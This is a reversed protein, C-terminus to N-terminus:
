EEDTDELLTLLAVDPPDTPMADYDADPDSFLPSDDELVPPPAAVPADEARGRPSRPRFSSRPEIAPSSTPTSGRSSSSRGSATVAPRGVRPRLAAAEATDASTRTPTLLSAAQSARPKPPLAPPMSSKSLEPTKPIESSKSLAEGAETAPSSHTLRTRPSLPQRLSGKSARRRAAGDEDLAGSEITSKFPSPLPLTAKETRMRPGRVASLDVVPYAKTLPDHLRAMADNVATRWRQLRCCAMVFYLGSVLIPSSCSLTELTQASLFRCKTPTTVVASYEWRATAGGFCSYPEVLPLVKRATPAGERADCLLVAGDLVFWLGLNLRSGHVAVTDNTFTREVSHEAVQAFEAVTPAFRVGLGPSTCLADIRAGLLWSHRQKLEDSPQEVGYVCKAPLVRLAASLNSDPRLMAVQGDLTVTLVCQTTAVRLKHALKAIINGVTWAADVVIKYSLVGPANFLPDVMFEVPVKRPSQMLSPELVKTAAVAVPVGRAAATAHVAAYSLLNALPSESKCSFVYQTAVNNFQPDEVSLTCSTASVATVTAGALSLTKIASASSFLVDHSSLFYLCGEPTDRISSAVTMTVREMARLVRETPRVPLGSRAPSPKRLGFLLSSVSRGLALGDDRLAKVAAAAAVEGEADDGSRVLGELAEVVVDHSKAEEIDSQSADGASEGHTRLAQVLQSSPTSTSAVHKFFRYRLLPDCRLMESLNKNAVSWVEVDSSAAFWVLVPVSVQKSSHSTVAAGTSTVPPLLFSPVGFFQNSHLVQVLVLENGLAVACGVFGREIFLVQDLPFAECAILDYRELPGLSAGASRLVRLDDSSLQDSDGAHIASASTSESADHPAAAGAAGEVAMHMQQVLGLWYDTDHSPPVAIEHQSDVYGTGKDVTKLLVVDAGRRGGVEVVLNDLAISWVRKGSPVECAVVLDSLVYIKRRLQPAPATAKFRSALMIKARDKLAAETAPAADSYEKVEVEDLIVRSSASSSTASVLNPMDWEKALEILRTVSTAAAARSDVLQMTNELRQTAETLLRHDAHAGPTARLLERLLLIYRPLRQVPLIMISDLKAEAGNRDAFDRHFRKFDADAVLLQRLAGDAAGQGQTYALYAPLLAGTQLDHLLVDGVTSYVTWHRMRKELAKWFIVNLARLQRLSAFWEEVMTGMQLGERKAEEAFAEAVGLLRVYTRETTMLEKAVRARQLHKRYARRALKMRLRSQVLAVAAGESMRWEVGVRACLTECVDTLARLTRLLEDPAPAPAGTRALARARRLTNAIHLSDESM